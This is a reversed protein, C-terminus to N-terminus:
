LAQELIERHVDDVTGEGNVTKLQGRERYYDLL